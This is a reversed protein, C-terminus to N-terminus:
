ETEDPTKVIPNKPVDRSGITNELIEVQINGGNGFAIATLHETSPMETGEVLWLEGDDDFDFNVDSEEPQLIKTNLVNRQTDMQVATVKSSADPTLKVNVTKRVAGQLAVAYRQIRDNQNSFSM